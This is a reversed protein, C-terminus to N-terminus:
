SAQSAIMERLFRVEERLTEIQRDRDALREYLERITAHSELVADQRVVQLQERLYLVQDALIREVDSALDVADFLPQSLLKDLFERGEMSRLM